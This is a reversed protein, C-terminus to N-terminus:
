ARDWATTADRVRQQRHHELSREEIMEMGIERGTASAADLVALAKEAQDRKLHYRALGIARAREEHLESIRREYYVTWTEGPNRM